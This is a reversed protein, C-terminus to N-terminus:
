LGTPGRKKASIGQDFTLINCKESLQNGLADHSFNQLFSPTPSLQLRNIFSKSWIMAKTLTMEILSSIWENMWKNGVENMSKNSFLSLWCYGLGGKQPLCIHSNFQRPIRQNFNTPFSQCIQSSGTAHIIEEASQFMLWAPDPYGGRRRRRRWRRRRRRARALGSPRIHQTLAKWCHSSYNKNLILVLTVQFFYTTGSSWFNTPITTLARPPAFIM